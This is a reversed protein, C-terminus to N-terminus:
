LDLQLEMDNPAEVTLDVARAEKNREDRSQELQSKLVAIKELLPKKDAEADYLQEEIRNIGAGIFRNAEGLESAVPKGGALETSIREGWGVKISEIFTRQTVLAAKRADIKQIKRELTYIQEEMDRLQKGQQKELYVNRVTLGSIRALADGRGAARLTDEALQLPLGDFTVTNTGHRLKVQASRTVLARDNYVTVATIRSVATIPLTAAASVLPLAFIVAIVVVARINM